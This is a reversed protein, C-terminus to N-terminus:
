SIEQSKIRSLYERHAAERAREIQRRQQAEALDYCENCTAAKQENHLKCDHFHIARKLNYM